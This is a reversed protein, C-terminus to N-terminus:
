KAPKRAGTSMRVLDDARVSVRGGLDSSSTSIGAGDGAGLSGAGIFRRLFDLHSAEVTRVFSLDGSAM